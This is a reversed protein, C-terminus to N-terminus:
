YEWRTASDADLSEATFGGNKQSVIFQGGATKISMRFYLLAVLLGSCLFYFLIVFLGCSLLLSNFIKEVLLVPVSGFFSFGPFLWLSMGTCIHLHTHM